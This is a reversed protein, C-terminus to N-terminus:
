ARKRNQNMVDLYIEELKITQLNSNFEQEIWQRGRRGFFEIKEPHDFIKQICQELSEVDNEEALYGHEGDKVIEPIDSHRTSIIALGTAMADVIAMPTGEKRNDTTTRSAQIFVDCQYTLNIFYDYSQYGHLKVMGKIGGVEIATLISGKLPGDGVIDLSFKNTNRFKSLANIAIDIGKKELFSSAILFRIQNRGRERKNFRIKDVEIGLHFISIKSESCGLKILASKMYPGLVLIKDAEKFLKNYKGHYSDAFADDGYFSCVMPVGLKQKLKISKAGHYGFHAHLIQINNSDCVGRFFLFYGFIKFLGIEM